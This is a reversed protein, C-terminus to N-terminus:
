GRGRGPTKPARRGGPIPIWVPSRMRLRKMPLAQPSRETVPGKERCNFKNFHFIVQQVMGGVPYGRRDREALREEDPLCGVPPEVQRFPDRYQRRILDCPMRLHFIMRDCKVHHCPVQGASDCRIFQLGHRDLCVVVRYRQFLHGPPLKDHPKVLSGGRRELIKGCSHHAPQHLVVQFYAPLLQQDQGRSGSIGAAGHGISKVPKIINAHHYQERFTFYRVPLPLLHGGQPLIYM